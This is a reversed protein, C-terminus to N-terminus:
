RLMEPKSKSWSPNKGNKAECEELEKKLEEVKKRLQENEKRLSESKEAVFQPTSMQKIQEIQKKLKEIIEGAQKSQNKLEEISVSSSMRKLIPENRNFVSRFLVINVSSVVRSLNLMKILFFFFFNDLLKDSAFIANKSTIKVFNFCNKKELNM